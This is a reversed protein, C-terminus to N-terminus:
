RSGLKMEVIQLLRDIPYPKGLFTGHDPLEDNSIVTAGSTIVLEVDPRVEHVLRALAVGDLDGPMDVDTFLLRIAPHQDLVALAEEADNAEWVMLGCDALADAAVMRVMAEDEVVLIEKQNSKTMQGSRVFCKVTGSTASAIRDTITFPRSM